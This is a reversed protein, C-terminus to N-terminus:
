LSEVRVSEHWPIMLRRVIGVVSYFLFGIVSLAVIVAFLSNTEYANMKAILLYGLGHNGGLYEGVVAGIIALVVGVEAGTLIYPLASKMELHLFVQLRSANLSTMVDRHGPEVSKVGLLTNTFIPFFALVAALLIKSTMGFGFWVVFLPVLAVKPVVQSAVIFPNLSRELWPIKGLVAGMVVGLGLAAAFGALTEVVTVRTHMWITPSQVLEILADWVLLPTPLIFTSIKFLVVYLHWSLLFALLLLPALVWHVPLRRAKRMPAAAAAPSLEFPTSV